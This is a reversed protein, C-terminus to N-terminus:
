RERGSSGQAGTSRNGGAGYNPSDSPRGTARNSAVGQSSGVNRQRAGQDSSSRAQPQADRKAVQAPQAQQQPPEVRGMKCRGTLWAGEEVILGACILDGKVRSGSKLLLKSSCFVNGRVNGLALVEEARIDGEVVGQQGIELRGQLVVDGRITGEVLLHGSGELNGTLTIGRPIMPGEGKRERDRGARESIRPGEDKPRVPQEAKLQRQPEPSKGSRHKKWWVM